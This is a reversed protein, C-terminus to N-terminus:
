IVANVVHRYSISKGTIESYREIQCINGVKMNYHRSIRDTRLIKPIQDMRCNYQKLVKETDEKNLITHKPVLIHQTVNIFLEEYDFIEINSIRKFDKLFKSIKKDIVILIYHNLMNTYDLLKILTQKKIINTETLFKVHITYPIDDFDSKFSISESNMKTKIEALIKKETGKDLYNRDILMYVINVLVNERLEATSKRINHSM